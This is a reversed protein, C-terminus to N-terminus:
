TQLTPNPTRALALTLPRARPLAAAARTCLPWPLADGSVSLIRLSPLLSPVEEGEEGGEEEGGKEGGEEDDCTDLLMRLAQPVLLLRSVRWAECAARLARPDAAAAAPLLLLPVGKGLPGVQTPERHLNPNPDVSGSGSGSGSGM